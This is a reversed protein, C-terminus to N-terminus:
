HEEDKGIIKLDVPNAPQFLLTKNYYLNYGKKTRFEFDQFKFGDDENERKFVISEKSDPLFIEAVLSDEDIFFYANKGKGLSDKEISTLRYGEEFVRVCKKTMNSWKYGSKLDCGNKNLDDRVQNKVVSDLIVEDSDSSMPNKLIYDCSFLATLIFIFIYKKM